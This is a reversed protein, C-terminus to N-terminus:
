AEKRIRVFNVRMGTGGMLPDERYTTILASDCACKTFPAYIRLPNPAFGHVM